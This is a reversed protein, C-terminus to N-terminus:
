FAAGLLTDSISCIFMTSKDHQIELIQLAQRVENIMNRSFPTPVMKAGERIFLPDKLLERLRKLAHSMAPQSLGIRSGARTVSRERMVADFVILLNFDFAGWNMAFMYARHRHGALMGM